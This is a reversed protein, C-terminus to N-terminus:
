PDDIQHADPWVPAVPGLVVFRLNLRGPKLHHTALTPEAAPHVSAWSSVWAWYSRIAGSSGSCRPLTLSGLRCRSVRSASVRTSEGALCGGCPRDRAARVGRGLRPRVRGASPGRRVLAGGGAAEGWARSPVGDHRRLAALALGSVVVGRGALANPSAGVKHTPHGSARRVRLDAVFRQIRRVRRIELREDPFLRRSGRGAATRLEPPLSASPPVSLRFFLSHPRKLKATLKTLQETTPRDIGHVM